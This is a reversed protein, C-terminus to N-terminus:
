AENALQQMLGMMEEVSNVQYTEVEGNRAEEMAQITAKNPQYDLQVPISNTSVVQQLYMKIAQAPSLGYSKFVSFAEQKLQEDLRFTYSAMKTGKHLVNTKCKLPYFVHQCSYLVAPSFYAINQMKAGATRSISWPISCNAWDIESHNEIM